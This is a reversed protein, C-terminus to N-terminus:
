LVFIHVVLMCIRAYQKRSVWGRVLPQLKIAIHERVIEPEPTPLQVKDKEDYVQM